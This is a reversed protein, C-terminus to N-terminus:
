REDSAGALFQHIKALCSEVSDNSTDVVFDYADEIDRARGNNAIREEIQEPLMFGRSRLRARVVDDSATVLILKAQPLFKKVYWGGGLNMVGILNREGSLAPHLTNWAIGYSMGFDFDRYELFEGCDAMERFKNMDIFYYEGEDSAQPRRKRTTHRRAYSLGFAPDELMRHVITTKGVGSAGDVLVIAGKKQSRAAFAREKAARAFMVVLNQYSWPTIRSPRLKLKQFWDHAVCQAEAEREPAIPVEIEVFTGVGDVDDINVITTGAVYRKRRKKVEVVTSLYNELMAALLDGNSSELSLYDFESERILPEDRRSYGILAKAKGDNSRLKLRGTKTAFYLDHQVVQQELKAGNLSVAKAIQEPFEVACKFEINRM